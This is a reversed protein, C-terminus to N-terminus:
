LSDNGHGALPRFSRFGHQFSEEAQQCNQHHEQRGGQALAGEGLDACEGHQILFTEQIHALEDVGVIIGTGITGSLASLVCQLGSIGEGTKKEKLGKILTNNICYGLKLSQVGGIAITLVIGGGVLWILMPIGWAWDAFATIAEYIFM